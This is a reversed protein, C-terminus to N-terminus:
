TNENLLVRLCFCACHKHKNYLVLDPLLIPFACICYIIFTTILPAQFFCYLTLANLKLSQLHRHALTHTHTTSIFPICIYLHIALFLKFIYLCNMYERKLYTYRGVLTGGSSVKTLFHASHM